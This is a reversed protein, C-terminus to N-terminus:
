AIESALVEAQSDTNISAILLISDWDEVRGSDTAIREIAYVGSAIADDPDDWRVEDGVNLSRLESIKM